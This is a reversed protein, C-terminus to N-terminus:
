DFRLSRAALLTFGVAFGALVVLQLAVGDLTRGFSITGHLASMAWGTPLLLAVTQLPKSVVEIPWWCGGLAAMAMTAIM